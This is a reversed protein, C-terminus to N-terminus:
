LSNNCFIDDTYYTLNHNKLLVNSQFTGLQKIKKFVQIFTCIFNTYTPMFQSLTSMILILSMTKKEIDKCDSM